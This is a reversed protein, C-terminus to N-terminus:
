GEPFQLTFESGKGLESDIEMQFRDGYILHMREYVNPIGIGSFHGKHNAIDESLRSSELHLQNRLREVQERSMGVGNDIVRIVLRGNSKWASIVIEGGKIKFGHILANEVVPQIFFRPVQELMCDASINVQIIITEKRRVNMLKVYQVVIDLEEQLSIFENRRDITMRLLLSLSHILDASEGDGKMRIRLQISNLLNFLFHPNVQAQLMKLEAERKRTQETKIQEIMIQIRDLMRDFSNGLSRIEDTGSIGSRVQMNGKEVQRAVKGLKSIPKTFQRILYVLILMFILFFLIQMTLNTRYIANIKSTAEKYPTLSVLQWKLFPHKLLLYEIGDLKVLSSNEESALLDTFPIPQGIKSADQHSVILGQANVLMMNEHLDQNEYFKSFNKEKMSIIIYGFPRSSIGKIVRVFSIMNPYQKKASQIYTEHPGMWNNGNDALHVVDQFWPEHIFESPKYEYYSYNSYYLDESVVISVYLEDGSITINELKNTIKQYDLIDLTREPHLRLENSQRKLLMNIESDFQIFNATNIMSEMLNSLYLHTMTLKKEAQTVTQKKIVDKTTYGSITVIVTAPIILCLIASYMLKLRLSSPYMYQFLRKIMQEDNRIDNFYSLAFGSKSKGEDYKTYADKDICSNRIPM